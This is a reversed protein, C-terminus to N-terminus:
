REVGRGQVALRGALQGLARHRAVRRTTGVGALYAVVAPCNGTSVARCGAVPAAALLEVALCAAVLEAPRGSNTSSDSTDVIDGM